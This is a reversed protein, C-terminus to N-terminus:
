GRLLQYYTIKTDGYNKEKIKELNGKKDILVHTKCSEFVVIALPELIDYKVLSELLIDTNKLDYPPDLYVLDFTKKKRQLLKLSELVDLNYYDAKETFACKIVNEKIVEMAKINHEVFTAEACGRSLAELGVNGTGAFLDLMKKGEISNVLVSFIAGKVKDSTPRTKIGALSKLTTGRCVGAIIRM